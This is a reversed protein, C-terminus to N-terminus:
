TKSAWELVQGLPEGHGMGVVPGLGQRVIQTQRTQTPYWAATTGVTLSGMTTMMTMVPMVRDMMTQIRSPATPCQPATTGLTRTGMGMGLTLPHPLSVILHGSPGTPAVWGSGGGGM